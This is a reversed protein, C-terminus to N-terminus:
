IDECKKTIIFGPLAAVFCFALNIGAEMVDFEGDFIISIVAAYAICAIIICRTGLHTLFEYRFVYGIIGVILVTVLFPAFVYLLFENEELAEWAIRPYFGSTKSSLILIAFPSYPPKM